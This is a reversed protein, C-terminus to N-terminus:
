TSLPSPYCSILNIFSPLFLPFLVLPPYCHVLAFVFRCYIRFLEPAANLADNTWHQERSSNSQESERERTGEREDRDGRRRKKRENNSSSSERERARESTQESAQKSTQRESPEKNHNLSDTSQLTNPTTTNRYMSACEPPTTATTTVNIALTRTHTYENGGLRENAQSDSTRKISQEDGDEDDRKAVLM